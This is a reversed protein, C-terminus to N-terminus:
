GLEKTYTRFYPVEYEPISLLNETIRKGLLLPIEELNLILLYMSCEEASNKTVDRGESVGKLAGLAPLKTIFDEGEVSSFRKSPFLNEM